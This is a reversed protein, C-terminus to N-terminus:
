MMVSVLVKTVFKGVFQLRCWNQSTILLVLIVMWIVASLEKTVFDMLAVYFM